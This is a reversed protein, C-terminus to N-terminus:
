FSFCHIYLIYRFIKWGLHGLHGGPTGINTHCNCPLQMATITIYNDNNQLTQFYIYIYPSLLISTAFVSFANLYWCKELSICVCVTLKVGKSTPELVPKIVLSLLFLNCDSWLNQLLCIFNLFNTSFMEAIATSLEYM